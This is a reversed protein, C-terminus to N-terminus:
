PIMRLYAAIILGVSYLTVVPISITSLVTKAIGPKLFYAMTSILASVVLIVWGLLNNITMSIVNTIRTPLKMIVTTLAAPLLALKPSKLILFGLIWGLFALFLLFLWEM